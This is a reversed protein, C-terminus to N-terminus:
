YGLRVVSVEWPSADTDILTFQSEGPIPVLRGPGVFLAGDVWRHFPEAAGGCMLLAAGSSERHRQLRTHPTEADIIESQSAPSGHCCHMKIGDVERDIRKSLGRLFELGESSLRAHAAAIWQFQEPELKRRFTESKQEFRVLMRDMEGQCVRVGHERLLTIVGDSGEPGALNGTQFVTLIGEDAIHNLATALAPAQGDCDGLVALLM